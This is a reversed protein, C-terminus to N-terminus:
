GTTITCTGAKVLVNTSTVVEAVVIVDGTTVGSTIADAGATMATWGTTLTAGIAPLTSTIKFKHSSTGAKIPNVYISTKGAGTGALSVVTLMEAATYPTTLSPAGNCAISVSVASGSRAPGLDDGVKTITADVTVASYVAATEPDIREIKIQTKRYSAFGYKVADSYIYDQATNGIVRKGSLDFTIQGGLVETRAWGADSLWEFTELVENLAEAINDFGEGLAAWTGSKASGSTDISMVNKYNIALKSM